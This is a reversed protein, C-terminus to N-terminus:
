AARGKRKQIETAIRDAFDRYTETGRAFMGLERGKREIGSDSRKWAWEDNSPKTPMDPPPNVLQEIIPKLYAPPIPDPDPKYQRAQDIAARLVADTCREDNAWAVCDPHM